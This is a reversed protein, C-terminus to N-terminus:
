KDIIKEEVVYTANALDHLVLPNDIVLEEEDVFALFLELEGDHNM